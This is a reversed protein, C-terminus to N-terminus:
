DRYHIPRVHEITMERIVWVTHHASYWAIDYGESTSAGMATEEFLHALARTPMEDHADLEYHRVHFHATYSHPM